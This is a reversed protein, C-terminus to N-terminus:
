QILSCIFFSYVAVMWGELCSEHKDVWEIAQRAESEVISWQQAGVSLNAFREPLQFSIRMFPRTILFRVPIYLLHLFGALSSPRWTKAVSESFEVFGSSSVKNLQLNRLVKSNSNKQFDM